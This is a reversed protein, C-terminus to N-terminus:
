TAAEPVPIFPFGRFRLNGNTDLNNFKNKCTSRQHDCGPYITFADGAAPINGLAIVLNIAGNANLYSKVTHIAGTNNGSTFTLVGHLFYNDAQTLNTYFASISNGAYAVVAGSVIWSAKSLGCGTGFLPWICSNEYVNVPWDIGFLYSYSSVTIDAHDRGFEVDNVILGDFKTIVGKLTGGFYDYYIRQIKVEAYDLVGAACAILFGVGGITAARPYITLKVECVDTGCKETIAGRQILVSQSLYTNGGYTIDVDATTYYLVTGNVLTITFLEAVAAQNSTQMFTLLPSSTTKM